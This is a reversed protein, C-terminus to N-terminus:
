PSPLQHFRAADGHASPGEHQVLSKPCRNAAPHHVALVTLHWLDESQNSLVKAAVAPLEGPVQSDDGSNGAASQTPKGKFFFSELMILFVGTCIHTTEM